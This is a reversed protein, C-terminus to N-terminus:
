LILQQCEVFNNRKCARTFFKQALKKNQKVGDGGERYIDAAAMCAQASSNKIDMSKYCGEKFFFLASKIYEQQASDIRYIQGAKLCDKAHGYHCALRNFGKSIALYNELHFAGSYIEALRFCSPIHRLHCAEEYLEFSIYPNKHDARRYYYLDGLKRCGVANDSDCAQKYLQQAQFYEQKEEAIVGLQTCSFTARWHKGDCAIKYLSIALATNKPTGLENYHLFALQACSNQLDNDCAKQYFTFALAYDQEIYIGEEYIKGARLCGDWVRYECALKYAELATAMDRKLKFEYGVKLCNKRTAESCLEDPKINNQNCAQLLFLFTFSFFLISTLRQM